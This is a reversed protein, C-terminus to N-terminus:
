GPSAVVETISGSLAFHDSLHFSTGDTEVLGEIVTVDTVTVEGRAFWRTFYANFRTPSARFRNRRGDWTPSPPRPGHLGLAAIDAEEAVRTNTDGAIVLDNTPSADIVAELQELRTAAGGSGPALHVNAVTLDREVFTVLIATAAVTSVMIQEDLLDNGLLTALNGSHTMPNTRVMDHTEVYPVLGPVEQFLVVDAGVELVTERIAHQSNEQGWRNPAFASRELLAVNWTLVSLEPRQQQQRGDTATM